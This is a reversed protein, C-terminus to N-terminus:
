ASQALLYPLARPLGVGVAPNLAHAPADQGFRHNDRILSAQGVISVLTHDVWPSHEIWLLGLTGGRRHLVLAQIPEAMKPLWV